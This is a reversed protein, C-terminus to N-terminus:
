ICCYICFTKVYGLAIASGFTGIFSAFYCGLGIPAYYMIITIVKMIVESLSELLEQTPKAKEGAMRIALGFIISFTITYYKKILLNM